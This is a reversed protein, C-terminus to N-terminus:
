RPMSSRSSGALRPARRTELPTRSHKCRWPLANALFPRELETNSSPEEVAEDVERLEKSFAEFMRRYAKQRGEGETTLPDLRLPVGALLEDEEVSRSRLTEIWPGPSRALLVM